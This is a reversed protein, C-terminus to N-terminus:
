SNREKLIWLKSDVMQGRHSLERTRRFTAVHDGYMVVRPM